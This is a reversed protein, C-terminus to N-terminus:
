KQEHWLTKCFFSDLSKLYEEKSFKPRFNSVIKAAAKAGDYLLDIATMAQIKAPIIYAMEEDSVKFDKTHLGGTFGGVFPHVGAKIHMLDGMDTSGGFAPISHINDKGLLIAANKLWLDSFEENSSLPLYGPTQSIEVSAGIGMAGARLARDVKLSTEKMTEVSNARVYMEVRIESPVVNVSDGGKTVILHVRVCDNDKFTERQAHIASLAINFANLANIGEFPAAGAHSARGIFRVSKGVFGNSGKAVFVNRGPIDSQAHSMMALDIDDFADLRILEQKGGFYKIKNEERLKQRFELDLYEEAPVAFLVVTGSLYERIKKLGLGAGILWAIQAFHGCAHVLGTKKDALLHEPNFLADLEGIIALTPGNKGGIIRGKVGTVALKDEYEIEMERFANKVKDATKFEKFGEEPESFISKGLQIIKERNKEIEGNAIEKLEEKEM